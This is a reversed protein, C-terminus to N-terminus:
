ATHDCIAFSTKCLCGEGNADAWTAPLIGVHRGFVPPTQTQIDDQTINFIHNGVEDKGTTRGLPSASQFSCLAETRNSRRERALGNEDIVENGLGEDSRVPLSLDALTWSHPRRSPERLQRSCPLASMSFGNIRTGPSNRSSPFLEASPRELKAVYNGCFPTKPHVKRKRRLLCFHGLWLGPMKLASLQYRIM